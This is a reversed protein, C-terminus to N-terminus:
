QQSKQQREKARQRLETFVQEAPIGGHKRLSEEGEHLARRLWVLKLEELLEDQEETALTEALSMVTREIQAIKDHRDETIVKDRDWPQRQDPKGWKQTLGHVIHDHEVSSLPAIVQVIEDIATPDSKRQAMIKGRHRVTYVPRFIM